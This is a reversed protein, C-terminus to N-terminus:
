CLVSKLLHTRNVEIITEQKPALNKEVDEKLRRLMMPKLIAQLKQVQPGLILIYSNAWRHRSLVLLVFFMSLHTNGVYTYMECRNRQKSTELTESSNLRQLSSLLSSSIFCVSSNRWLTRSLLAPWCCRTNRPSVVSCLYFMPLSPHLSSLCHLFFASNPTLISTTLANLFLLMKILNLSCM